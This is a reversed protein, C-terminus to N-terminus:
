RQLLRELMAEIKALRADLLDLRGMVERYDQHMVSGGDGGMMAAEGMPGGPMVGMMGKRGMMGKGGMMGPQGRCGGPMGGKMAMGPMDRPMATGPGEDAETADAPSTAMDEPSAVDASPTEQTAVPEAAPAMGIDSPQTEEAMVVPSALLAASMALSLFQRTLM